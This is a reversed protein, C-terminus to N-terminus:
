VFGSLEQRARVADVMSRGIVTMLGAALLFGVESAGFSIALMRQGPPNASSLVLVQLTHTVVQLGAVSLLGTGIRSIGTAAGLTLAAGDRFLAFLAQAQWLVYAIGVWPLFGILLAALVGAESLGDGIAVGPFAAFLRERGLDGTIALTAAIVPLSLLAAWTGAHLIAPLRRSHPM